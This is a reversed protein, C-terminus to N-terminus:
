ASHSSCRSSSTSCRITSTSPRARATGSSGRLAPPWRLVAAVMYFLDVRALKRIRSDALGPVCVLYEFVLIVAISIMAVYHLYAVLAGAM